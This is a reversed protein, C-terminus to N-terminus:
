LFSWNPYPSSGLFSEFMEVDFWNSFNLNPQLSNYHISLGEYFSDVITVVSACLYVEFSVGSITKEREREKGRKRKLSATVFFVCKVAPRPAPFLPSFFIHFLFRFM